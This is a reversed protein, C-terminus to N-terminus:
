SLTNLKSANLRPAQGAFGGCAAPSFADCQNTGANDALQGGQLMCSEGGARM